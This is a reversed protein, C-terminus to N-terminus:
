KQVKVFANPAVVGLGVHERGVIRVLDSTALTLDDFKFTIEDGAPFNAIAGEGLDGVIAYTDGTSAATYATMTSNFVVPCGEFPDVPYSAAYQAAKFSAYTKKNMIIAPNAAQDSLQAM